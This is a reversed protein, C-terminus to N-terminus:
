RGARERQGRDDGAERQEREVAGAAGEVDVQGAGAEADAGRQQEHRQGEAHAADLRDQGLEIRLDLVGRGGEAGGPALHQARMRSGLTRGDTSAPAPRAKARATPSNPETTSMEPLMGNLVSTADDHIKLRECLSSRGAALATEM